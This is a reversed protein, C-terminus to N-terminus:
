RAQLVVRRPIEVSKVFDREAICMLQHLPAVGYYIPRLADSIKMGLAELAADPTAGGPPAGEVELAIAVLEDWDRSRDALVM